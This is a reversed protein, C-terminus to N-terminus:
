ILYKIFEDLEKEFKQATEAGLERLANMNEETADDLEPSIGERFETNIRLYKEPIREASFIQRLQYDAAESAGSMMISVLPQAWSILGWGKAHDWTYSKEKSGTGLSLIAMDKTRANFLTFAETYACLAPNNVCVGGDILPYTIGSDSRVDSCEFYTPAASTARAVDRVYFDWGEKKRADHQTFFHLQRRNIDYSSILCPKLLGSLKREGFYNHLVKEIGESPYKEDIIGEASVIKKKLSTSFITGGNKLYLDVVEGATFAPRSPDDVSPALYACTLIGGTSTGAILDFYDAIRANDNNVAKKLKEELVVLIQGPIIGRIGGGDISLVRILKKNKKSM